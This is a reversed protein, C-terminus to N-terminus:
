AILPHTEFEHSDRDDGYLYKYRIQYVSFSLSIIFISGTLIFYVYPAPTDWQDTFVLAGTVVFIISVITSLVGVALMKNRYRMTYLQM